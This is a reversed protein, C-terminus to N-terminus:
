RAEEGAGRRARPGGGWPQAVGTPPNGVRRATQRALAAQGAEAASKYPVHPLRLGTEHMFLEMGLHGTTGYGPSGYFLGGPRERALAMFEKVDRAPLEARVVLLMPMDAVVSVPAFAASRDFPM